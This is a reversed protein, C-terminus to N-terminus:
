LSDLKIQLENVIVIGSAFVFFLFLIFTIELQEPFRICTSM